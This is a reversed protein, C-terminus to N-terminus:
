KVTPLGGIEVNRYRYSFPLSSSDLFALVNPWPRWQLNLEFIAWTTSHTLVSFFHDAVFIKFVRHIGRLERPFPLFERSNGGPIWFIVISYWQNTIVPLVWRRPLIMVISETVHRGGNRKKFKSKSRTERIGSFNSSFPHFLLIHPWAGCPFSLVVPYLQVVAHLIYRIEPAPTSECWIVWRVSQKKRDYVVGRCVTWAGDLFPAAPTSM